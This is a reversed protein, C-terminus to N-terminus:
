EELATGDRAGNGHVDFLPSASGEIFNSVRKLKECGEGGGKAASPIQSLVKGSYCSCASYRMQRERGLNGLFKEFLVQEPYFAM